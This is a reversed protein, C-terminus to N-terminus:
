RPTKLVRHVAWSGTHRLEVFESEDRHLYYVYSADCGLVSVGSSSGCDDSLKAQSQDALSVRTLAGELCAYLAGDDVAVAGPVDLPYYTVGSGDRAVAAIRRGSETRSSTFWHTANYKTLISGFYQGPLDPSSALMRLSSEAFRYSIFVGERSCGLEDAAPDYACQEGAEFNAPLISAAGTELSLAYQHPDSSYFDQELMLASDGRVGVWWNEWLKAKFGTGDKRLAAWGDNHVPGDPSDIMGILPFMLHQSTVLLPPDTWGSDGIWTTQWLLRPQAPASGSMDLSYIGLAGDKNQTWYLRGGDFVTRESGSSRTGSDHVEAVFEGQIFTPNPDPEFPSPDVPLRPENPGDARRVAAYYSFGEIEFHASGDKFTAGEVQEWTAAKGEERRVVMDAKAECPLEVAVPRAFKTGHPTFAYIKSSLLLEGEGAIRPEDLDREDKLPAVSLATDDALAGAPVRLTVDSLKFTGGEVGVTKPGDLAAESGDPGCGFVVLLLLLCFFLGSRSM